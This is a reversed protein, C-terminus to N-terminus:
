QPGLPYFAPPGNAFLARARLAAAPSEWWTCGPDALRHGRAAGPRPTQRCTRPRLLHTCRYSLSRHLSRHVSRPCRQQPCSQRRSALSGGTSTPATACHWPTRCSCAAPQPRLASAAAPQQATPGAPRKDRRGGGRQNRLCKGRHHDDGGAGAWGGVKSTVM